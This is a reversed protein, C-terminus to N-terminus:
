VVELSAAGRAGVGRPSAGLYSQVLGGIGGNALWLLPAAVGSPACAHVEAWGVMFGVCDIRAALCTHVCAAFEFGVVLIDVCRVLDNVVRLRMFRRYPLEVLAVSVVLSSLRGVGSRLTPGM